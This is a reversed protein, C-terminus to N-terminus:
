ADADEKYNHIVVIRRPYIYTKARCWCNISEEHRLELEGDDMRIGLVEECPAWDAPVPESHIGLVDEVAESYECNNINPSRV